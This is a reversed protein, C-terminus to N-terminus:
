KGKSGGEPPDGVQISYGGTEISKNPDCTESPGCVCYLVDSDNVGQALTFPGNNGQQLPICGNAPENEFANTPSTCVSCGGQPACHFAVQGTNDVVAGNNPNPPNAKWEDTSPNYTITIQLSPGGAARAREPQAM